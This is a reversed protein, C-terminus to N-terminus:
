RHDKTELGKLFVTTVRFDTEFLLPYSKHVTVTPCIPNEQLLNTLFLSCRHLFTKFPELVRNVKGVVVFSKVSQRRIGIRGRIEDGEKNRKKLDKIYIPAGKEQTVSLTTYDFKRRQCHM